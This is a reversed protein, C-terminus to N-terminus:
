LEKTCKKDRLEKRYDNYATIAAGLAATSQPNVSPTVPKGLLESFIRAIAHNNAVGGSFVIQDKYPIRGAKGMGVIRRAIAWGVGAIIDEKKKGQSLLSIIESEAFITCMSSIHCPEDSSDILDSLDDMEVGMLRHTLVEFFRGTGAACKDNMEFRTVMGNELGIVKSDQGGIDIITSVDPYIEVTGLGHAIIETIAKDACELAKRGYGTSVIRRVDGKEAGLEKLAANFVKVGSLNRDAETYDHYYVLQKKNEDLLVCKSTTSGIDIGAFLIAIVEKFKTSGYLPNSLYEAEKLNM